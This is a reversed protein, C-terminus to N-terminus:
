DGRHVAIATLEIAMGDITLAPVGIMARNPFPSDFFEAWVASVVPARAVDTVYVTVQVVDEMSSGAAELTDRLNRFTLRAQDGIDGVEFSGDECVPVQATFLLGGGVSAWSIPALDPLSTEVPRWRRGTAPLNPGPDAGM